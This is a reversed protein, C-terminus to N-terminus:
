TELLTLFKQALDDKRATSARSGTDSAMADFLSESMSKAMLKAAGTSATMTQASDDAPPGTLSTFASKLESLSLKGDGDSDISALIGSLLDDSSTAPSAADSGTTNTDGATVLADFLSQVSAGRGLPPPPPLAAMPRMIPTQGTSANTAAGAQPRGFLLLLANAKSASAPNALAANASVSSIM